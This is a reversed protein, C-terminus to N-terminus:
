GLGLISSVRGRPGPGARISPGHQAGSDAKRRMAIGPAGAPLGRLGRERRHAAGLRGEQERCRAMGALERGQQGGDRVHEAGPRHDSGGEVPHQGGAPLVLSPRRDRHQGLRTKRGLGEQDPIERAFLSVRALLDGLQEAPSRAGFVEHDRQRIRLGQPRLRQELPQGSREPIGDDHAGARHAREGIGGELPASLPDLAPRQRAEHQPPRLGGPDADGLRTTGRGPQERHGARAPVPDELEVPPRGEVDIALGRARRQGRVQPPRRRM